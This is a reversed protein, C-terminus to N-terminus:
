GDNRGIGEALGDWWNMRPNKAEKSCVHHRIKINPM